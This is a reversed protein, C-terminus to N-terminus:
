KFKEKLDKKTYLEEEEELFSFAGSESSLHKVGEVIIQDDLKSLLFEAFDSVEQLSSEPLKSINNITKKILAERTM